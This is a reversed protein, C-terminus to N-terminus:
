SRRCRTTGGSAAVHHDLVARLVHDLGAALPDGGDVELVREHRVRRDGLSGHDRDRVLLPVLPREGDADQALALVRGRVLQPLEERRVEGLEPERVRELEDVLDRLCRDALEALRSQALLERLLRREAYHLDAAPGEEDRAPLRAEALRGRPQELGFPRATTTASRGSVSTVSASATRASTLEHSASCPATFQAPIPPPARTIPNGSSRKRRTISTFRIPVKLTTEAAASFIASPSGSASPVRPTM